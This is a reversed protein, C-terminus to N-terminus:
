LADEIRAMPFVSLASGPSCNIVEVGRQKMADALAPFNPLMTTEYESRMGDPHDGDYHSQGDAGFKMDLGLTLIRRSGAKAVLEIAQHGGNGGGALTDRRDSFGGRRGTVPDPPLVNVRHAGWAEPITESCTTKIGPFKPAIQSHWHWWKADCAHLWDAWWAVFVANNVALVRCKGQVKARLVHGIQALSLSPGSCIVVATEGSWIEPVEWAQLM